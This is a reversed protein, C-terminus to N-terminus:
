NQPAERFSPNVDYITSHKRGPKPSGDPEQRPRIVNHVAMWNVADSLAGRDDRFRRLDRTIDRESFDSLSHRRLWRVIARVDDGGDDRKGGIAAYVRLAHAKFYDVIRFAAEITRKPLEPLDDAPRTPDSALTMLHLILALRAAYAELKGWPGELSDPFDDAEQEAYHAQCWAFWSRAADPTMKAVWPTPKGDVVRMDRHWLALAVREWEAAVDDPIGQESYHRAPRDPYSFLLRAMFGDDRGRGEPLATLMDPTMGGVVTLFPHPVVIPETMHKARDVYVPEGNWASLYFPRDGGKGGKYQDMSLVWKTMEDPAVTLGRPNKVLIPGLAETTPDTSAIRGLIPKEGKTDPEPSEWADMETRWRDYLMQAILWVPALAVRLAPSKGSSPSGVLAVYLSASAFYGSKILLSVSQGIIGSAAALIAVAPFDIPCAISEAAAEALDRATGPLVDLPFPEAPPLTKFRIPGWGDDIANADAEPFPEEPNADAVARIITDPDNQFSLYDDWIPQRGEPSAEDLRKALPRYTVPLDILEGNLSHGCLLRSFIWAVKPGFGPATAENSGRRSPDDKTVADGRERDM